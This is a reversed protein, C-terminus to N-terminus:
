DAVYQIVQIMQPDLKHYIKLFETRFKEAMLVDSYGEDVVEITLYQGEDTQCSVVAYKIM